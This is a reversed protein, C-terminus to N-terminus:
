PKKPEYGPRRTCLYHAYNAEITLGEAKTVYYVFNDGLKFPRSCVVCHFPNSTKCATYRLATFDTCYSSDSLSFSTLRSGSVAVKLKYSSLSDSSSWRVYVLASDSLLGKGYPSLKISDRKFASDARSFSEKFRQASVNSSFALMAILLFPTFNKM